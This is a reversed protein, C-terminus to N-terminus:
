ASTGILVLSEPRVVFTELFGVLARDVGYKVVDVADIQIPTTGQERFEVANKAGALVQPDTAKTGAFYSQPAKVITVSGDAAGQGTGVGVNFNVFEPLLDRPTYILQSWAVPNVVAFSPTDNADQIAEIAQILMVLAPYYASNAPTGTPLSAPAVLRDLASSTKSAANYVDTLADADTVKAYSEVVGEWFAAIVDAGGELDFWERAIDAVYGYKRLTSTSGISATATGSPLEVKQAANTVAAVLASGQDLKWGKRGGLQIGGYQHNLLDIYRREYRRGQWLKGVWQPQIVGSSPSVLGGSSAYKIDSITALLNEADAAQVTNRSKASAMAGFVANLDVEETAKAGPASALLTTPVQAGAENEAMEAEEENTTTAEAPAAETQDADEDSATEIAAAIDEARTIPDPEPALSFLAASEFAGEECVAAGTLRAAAARTRDAANRTLGAVEASLKRLPKALYADGEDTDAITFEAELGRDTETLASVRGIPNFRDHETNLTLVSVDRPVKVTGKSFMVPEVGNGSTRSLEDFPLLLGRVIRSDAVRAFLGAEEQSPSDNDIASVSIETDDIAM